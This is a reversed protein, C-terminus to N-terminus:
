KVLSNKGMFVTKLYAAWQEAETGEDFVPYYRYPKGTIDYETGNYEDARAVRILDKAIKTAPIGMWPAVYTAAWEAFAWQRAEDWKETGAPTTDTSWKLTSKIFQTLPDDDSYKQLDEELAKPLFVNKAKKYQADLSIFPDASSYPILSTPYSKRYSPNFVAEEPDDGEFVMSILVEWTRMALYWEAAQKIRLEGSREVGTQGFLSWMNSWASFVYSQMPAFAKVIQQNINRNRTVQDYMSQTIDAIYDGYEQAANTEPNLGLQLGHLVGAIYSFEVTRSEVAGSFKNAKNMANQRWSEKITNIVRESQEAYRGVNKGSAKLEYVSSKDVGNIRNVALAVQRSKKLREIVSGDVNPLNRITDLAVLFDRKAFVGFTKAFNKAGVQMFTMALSSPQTTLSWKINGTLWATIRASHLKNLGTIMTRVSDQVTKVEPENFLKGGSAKNVVGKILKRAKGENKGIWNLVNKDLTSLAGEINSEQTTKWWDAFETHGTARLYKEWAGVKSHLDGLYIDKYGRNLMSEMANFFKGRGLTGYELAWSMIQNRAGSLSNWNAVYKKELWDLRAQQKPTLKKESLLKAYERRLEVQMEGYETQMNRRGKRLEAVQSLESAIVRAVRTEELSMDFLARDRGATEDKVLSMIKRKDKWIESMKEEFATIQRETMLKGLGLQDRMAVKINYMAVDFDHKQNKAADIMMRRIMWNAGGFEGTNKMSEHSIGDMWVAVQSPDFSGVIDFTVFLKPMGSEDVKRMGRLMDKEIVDLFEDTYYASKVFQFKNGAQEVDRLESLIRMATAEQATLKEGTKTKARANVANQLIAIADPNLLGSEDEFSRKMDLLHDALSLYEAVDSLYLELQLKPDKLVGEYKGVRESMIATKLEDFIDLANEGEREETVRQRLTFYNERGKFNGGLQADAKIIKERIDALKEDWESILMGVKKSLNARMADLQVEREPGEQALMRGTDVGQREALYAMAEAMEDPTLDLNYIGFDEYLAEKEYKNRDLLVQVAPSVRSEGIEQAIDEMGAERAIMTNFVGQMEQSVANRTKSYIQGLWHAMKQFVNNLQPVPSKGQMLWTTFDEAFAEEQERTWIGSVQYQSEVLDLLDDDLRLEDSANRDVIWRRAIHALEHVGTSVDSSKFGSVIAKAEDAAFQVAGKADQYLTQGQAEQTPAEQPEFDQEIAERSEYARSARNGNKDVAYWKGDQEQITFGQIGGQFLFEGIGTDEDFGYKPATDAVDGIGRVLEKVESDGGQLRKSEVMLDVTADLIRELYGIEKLYARFKKSSIAEATMEYLNGLGYFYHKAMGDAKHSRVLSLPSRIAQKGAPLYIRKALKQFEQTKEGVGRHWTESVLQAPHTSELQQAQKPTLALHSRYHGTKINPVDLGAERLSKAIRNYDSKKGVYINLGGDKQIYASASWRRKGKPEAEESAVAASSDIKAQEDSSIDILLSIYDDEGYKQSSELSENAITLVETFLRAIERVASKASENNALAKIEAFFAEGQKDANLSYDGLAGALTPSTLIHTLEHIITTTTTHKGIYMRTQSAAARKRHGTYEVKKDLLAKPVVDLLQQAIKSFKSESEIVKELATRTTWNPNAILKKHTLSDLEPVLTGDEARRWTINDMPLGMATGLIYTTEAQEYPVNLAFAIKEIKPKYIANDEVNKQAQIVRKTKAFQRTAQVMARAFRGDAKLKTGKKNIPTENIIRQVETVDGSQVARRFMEHFKQKEKQANNARQATPGSHWDETAEFFFSDPLGMLYTELNSFAQNYLQYGRDMYPRAIDPVVTERDGRRRINKEVSQRTFEVERQGMVRYVQANFSGIDKGFRKKIVASLEPGLDIGMTAFNAAQDVLASTDAKDYDQYVVGTEDAEEESYIIKTSPEASQFLVSPAKGRGIVELNYENQAQKDGRAAKIFLDTFEFDTPLRAAIEEDTREKETWEGAERVRKTNVAKWDSSEMKKGDVGTRFGTKKDTEQELLKQAVEKEHNAAEENVIEVREKPSKAERLRKGIAKAATLDDTINAQAWRTAKLENQQEFIVNGGGGVGVMWFVAPLSDLFAKGSRKTTEWADFEGALGTTTGYTIGEQFFEEVSELFIETAMKVGGKLVASRMATDAIYRDVFRGGAKSLAKSLASRTGSGQAGGLRGFMFEVAGYAMGATYSAAGIMALEGADMESYKKGTMQAYDQLIQGQGQAAWYAVSVGTGVVPAVINGVAGAGISEAMPAASLLADQLGGVVWNDVRSESLSKGAAERIIKQREVVNDLDQLKGSMWLGSALQDQHATYQGYRIREWPNNIEGDIIKKEFDTGFFMGISKPDNPDKTEIMLGALLNRYEEKSGLTEGQGVSHWGYAEDEFEKALQIRLGQRVADQIEPPEDMLAAEIREISTRQSESLFPNERSKGIDLMDLTPDPVNELYKTQEARASSLATLYGVAKQADYHSKFRAREGFIEPNYNRGCYSGDKNGLNDYGRNEAKIEPTVGYEERLAHVADKASMNEFLKERVAIIGEDPTDKPASSKLFDTLIAGYAMDDGFMKQDESIDRELIDSQESVREAWGRDLGLLDTVDSLRPQTEEEETTDELFPNYM